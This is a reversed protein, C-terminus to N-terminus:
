RVSEGDRNVAENERVGNFEMGLDLLETIAYTFKFIAKSFEM